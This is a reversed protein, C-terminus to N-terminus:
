SVFIRIPFRSNPKLQPTEWAKQFVLNFIDYNELLM